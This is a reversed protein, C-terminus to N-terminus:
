LTSKSSPLRRERIALIIKQPAWETKAIYSHMKKEGYKGGETINIITLEPQPKVLRVQLTAVCYM